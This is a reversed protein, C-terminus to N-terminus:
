NLKSAPPRRRGDVFEIDSVRRGARAADNKKKVLSKEWDKKSGVDIVLYIAETTKEATKYAELQKTYGSVLRPNRSLKIEVLVKAQQGSSFKFDVVGTGTDAEPTVDINNAECYAFAVAHFLRQGSKEPRPSGRHFLEESLRREEILFRFQDIIEKVLKHLSAASKSAIPTPKFPANAAIDHGVRHWIFAGLPDGVFDYPKPNAGRLMDLFIEFSTPDSLAWGRIAGKDKKSKVSWIRAIQDNVRARLSANQSAASAVDSWDTAIPLDRLVDEPVLIIPSRPNSFPNRPLRADIQTGNKLSHSFQELKITSFSKLVRQTYAVLDPLIINTTMDSIRDPGIGDELLALSAFLDPNQIGMQVIESATQMVNDRTFNGSGSGSTSDGGYGLCTWTVEPFTLKREAARWAVDGKRNSAAFLKIVEQFHAEYRSQADTHMEPHKSDVLLLPDIFLKTDVNLTVNFAGTKKLAKESIGFHDTFRVPKVVKGLEREEIQAPINRASTIALTRM